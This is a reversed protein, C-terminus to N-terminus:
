AASQDSDRDQELQLDEIERTLRALKGALEELILRSKGHQLEHLYKEGLFVFQKQLNRLTELNSM